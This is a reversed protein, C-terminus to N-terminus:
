GELRALTLEMVKGKQDETRIRVPLWHRNPALWVDLNGEFARTGQVHLTELRERGVEVSERGLIAFRYGKLKRGNTVPVIWGGDGEAVTMALHFPFSLLDQTNDRLLEEGKPLILRKGPWDFRATDQRKQNRAMTFQEPLLGAPGIRGESSQEIRGSMFLSALGTAEAVSSLNYREGRIQWTYTAQGLNFGGDGAQVNYVLVLREPLARTERHPKAEAQPAPPAATTEAVMPAPQTQSAPEPMVAPGPEPTPVSPSTEGQPPPAPQALPQPQGIDEPLHRPVPEPGSRPPKSMAPAAEPQVAPKPLALHAEIPFPIERAPASWWEPANGAVLLHVALSLLLATVFIQRGRKM